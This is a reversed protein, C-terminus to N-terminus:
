GRKNFRLIGKITEWLMSWWNGGDFGDNFAGSLDHEEDWLRNNRLDIRDWTLQLMSRMRLGTCVSFRAALELHKPLNSCLKEFEMRSLWKMDAAQMGFMPIAPVAELYGWILCRRLIARLIALHRDVTAHSKGEELSLERLQEIADRDIARLPENPLQRCFWDVISGEKYRSKEPLESLWRAAAEEFRVYGKDGLKHVRWLRERESAEYEQAKGRDDTGTSRRTKRGAISISIWWHPSGKRRYISM